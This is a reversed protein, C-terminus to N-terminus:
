KKSIIVKYLGSKLYVFDMCYFICCSGVRRTPTPQLAFFDLRKAIKFLGQENIWSMTTWECSVGHKQLCALGHTGKWWMWTMSRHMMCVTSEEIMWWSPRKPGLRTGSVLCLLSAAYYLLKRLVVTISVWIPCDWSGVRLSVFIAM